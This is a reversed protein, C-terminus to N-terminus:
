FKVNIGAYLSRGMGPVSTGYRPAGVTNGAVPPMTTGQGVYAGGLPHYYLRDFVNEVGFDLRLTKSWTYSARLNFLAYSSTQLENRIDSVNKKGKVLVVEANSHWNGLQHLVALKANLPMMNYLDDGQGSKTKGRVYNLMGQATFDGVGTARALPFHGSLDFGYLQVDQNTYKLYVYNNSTSSQDPACGNGPGDNKTCRRANIYNDVYTYYPTFRIGWHQNEADHWDLTVSLTHAVEPKLDIDGVYGNGDGAMNIMNMAMGGTSWSYREYLNPSRTKMAYGFEYIQNRNAAYRAMATLDWNNDRKSRDANNFKGADVNYGTNYGSVKDADMRVLESRVGFLTLWKPSWTAEWEGFLAYRDRQGDNISVFTNPMMSKQTNTSGSPLWWDNFRYRQYEGGVRLLDRESLVVEAKAILGSNYGETDMPMGPALGAQTNYWYVKNEGFNMKHRTHEHYASVQLNGWDYRGLYRLNAQESKNDTMDMRQNPFGQYPIDQVGLKLELQHNDHRGAISLQHNTSKYMSSGVESGSLWKTSENRSIGVKAFAPGALKFDGGAQYNDSKVTAGRYSISLEETAVTATANAGQVNGNSRYFGGLEGKSLLGQGPQAFQPAPSDVKITGAISDGGVSVPTIGAFVKVSGVQSPDIYSLPPNMHNGCASILDMDDVKIRIRDDALGRIVPLSSVGGAGYLSVGPADQLLSATDSTAARLQRQREDNVSVAAPLPKVKDASVVVESLTTQALATASFAVAIAAALPQIRYRM